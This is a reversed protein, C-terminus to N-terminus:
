GFSAYTALTLLSAAKFGSQALKTIKIGSQLHDVTISFFLIVFKWDFLFFVRNLLWAAAVLPSYHAREAKVDGTLQGNERSLKRERWLLQLQLIGSTFGLSRSRTWVLSFLPVCLGIQPTSDVGFWTIHCIILLIGEGCWNRKAENSGLHSHTSETSLPM